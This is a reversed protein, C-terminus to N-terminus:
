GSGAVGKLPHGEGHVFDFEEGKVIDVFGVDNRQHVIRQDAFLHRQQRATKRRFIAPGKKGCFL